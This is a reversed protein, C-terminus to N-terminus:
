RQGQFDIFDHHRTVPCRYFQFGILCRFLTDIEIIPLIEAILLETAFSVIQIAVSPDYLDFIVLDDTDSCIQVARQNTICDLRSFLCLCRSADIAPASFTQLQTSRM